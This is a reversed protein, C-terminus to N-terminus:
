SEDKKGEFFDMWAKVETDSLEREKVAKPDKEPKPNALEELQSAIEKSTSTNIRIERAARRVANDDSVVTYEAPNAARRMRAILLDDATRDKPSFVVRVSSTSLNLDQGGPLGGDFIITTRRRKGAASWRRLLLVLEAEANPDGLQITSMKALLNHGDILYQMSLYNDAWSGLFCFFAM